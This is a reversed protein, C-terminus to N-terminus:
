FQPQNRLVSALVALPFDFISAIANCNEMSTREEIGRDLANEKYKLYVSSRALCASCHYM